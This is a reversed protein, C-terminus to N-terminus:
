GCVLPFKNAGEAVVFDWSQGEYEKRPSVEVKPSTKPKDIGSLCMKEVSPRVWEGGKPTLDYRLVLMSTMALIESSIFHRGACIYPPTGFGLWCKAQVKQREDRKETTMLAMFRRPNFQEVDEGWVEESFHLIPNPIQCFAGKKLLFRGNFIVDKDVGRFIPSKSQHRLVEHFTSTLLLCKERIAGLDLVQINRKADWHVAYDKLEQRIDSLLNPRSHIEFAMWFMAPASNSLVGIAMTLESRAMGDVTLGIKLNEQYRLITLQCSEDLTLKQQTFFKAFAETVVERAAYTKKAFIRPFFGFQTKL